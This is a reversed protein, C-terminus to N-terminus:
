PVFYDYPYPHLGLGVSMVRCSTNTTKSTQSDFAFNSESLQYYFGIFFDPPTLGRIENMM